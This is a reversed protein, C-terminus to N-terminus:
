ATERELAEQILQRVRGVTLGAAQPLVEDAAHGGLLGLANGFSRRAAQRDQRRLLLGGLALHAAVLSSDLFLANRLAQAAREPQDLEQLVMARLYHLEPDLKAQALAEEALALAEALRGQGALEQIAQAWGGPPGAAQSPAPPEAAPVPAPVTPPAPQPPPGPGDQVPAALPEPPPPAPAQAPFAEEWLPAEQGAQLPEAARSDPPGAKRYLIAEGLRVPAFRGLNLLSLECAGVALWGQPGLCAHLGAIVRRAVQSTFYMLVNRCFILDLGLPAGAPGPPPGAALNHQAFHVMGRIQPSLEQRGGPLPRFYDRTLWAPANRFSWPGYVGARALRLSQPNIDTALISIQWDQPNPLARRLAIALSYPEEGSACGASWLRLHRGQGTRRRLLEPLIHEELAQFASPERWFYTEGVTLHSALAELGGQPLGPGELRALLEAEGALGLQRAAQRARRGLDPWREPPFHLALLSAVLESLRQMGGQDLGPM